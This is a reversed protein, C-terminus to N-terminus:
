RDELRCRVMRVTAAERKKALDHEWIRMVRWGKARLTRNVLRDRVRNKGLKVEWFERNGAPMRCHKPCNHWFCGDIFVALREKRFVFDPKGFLAVNRRWGTIGHERFIGIMRLETDKNGKGRIRSMVASRKEPLFVDPM